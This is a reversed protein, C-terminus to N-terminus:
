CGIFLSRSDAYPDRFEFVVGSRCFYYNIFNLLLHFDGEIPTVAHFPPLVSLWILESILLDIWSIYVLLFRCRTLRHALLQSYEVSPTEPSTFLFPFFPIFM